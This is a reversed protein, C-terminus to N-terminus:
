RPSTQLVDRLRPNRTDKESLLPPLIPWSIGLEPDDWAVAPYVTGPRWHANVLYGYVTPDSLAQFANGIGRPIYVANGAELTLTVLHGRTASDPRLDVWAGFADGHVAHVYKDWPEAHIGRLTGRASVSINWQVAGLDPLGLAELKEAQFAERFSGREDTHVDLGVVLLGEIATPRVDM